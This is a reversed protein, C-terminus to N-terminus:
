PQKALKSVTSALDGSRDESQRYLVLKGTRDYALVSPLSSVRCQDFANGSRDIAVTFSRGRPMAFQTVAEKEESTIAVLRVGPFKAVLKTCDTLTSVSDPSQTAWFALLTPAGRLSRLNLDKGDLTVVTADPLESGLMVPSPAGKPLTAVSDVIHIQPPIHVSLSGAPLKQRTHQEVIEEEFQLSKMDKPLGLLRALNSRANADAFLEGGDFRIRYVLCSTVGILVDVSGYGGSAHFVVHRGSEGSPTIDEKGLEVSGSTGNVLDSM